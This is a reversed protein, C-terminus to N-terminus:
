DRKPMLWQTLLAMAGAGALFALAVTTGFLLLWLGRDRFSSGFDVGWMLYGCGAAAVAAVVFTLGDLINALIRRM